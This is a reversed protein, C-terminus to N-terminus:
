LWSWRTGANIRCITSADVRYLKAIEKQSKHATLLKKIEVVDQETLKSMGHRSGKARKGHRLQDEINEKPTAWRLNTVDNNLKNGDYHAVHLRVSTNAPSPLFTSAVLRHVYLPKFKDGRTKRLQVAPYGSIKSTKLTKGTVTNRVEGSSSIEYDTFDKLTRWETSM